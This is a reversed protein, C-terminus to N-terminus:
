YNPIVNKEGTKAYAILIIYEKGHLFFKLIAFYGLCVSYVICLVYCVYGCEYLRCCVWVYMGVRMCVVVCGCTCVWVCVFSLVGVRVYGCEYLRCCVWVYMGVSWVFSLVGVRVYGCEYLRCCM